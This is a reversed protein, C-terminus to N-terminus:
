VNLYFGVCINSNCERSYDTNHLRSINFEVGLFMFMSIHLSIAKNFRQWWKTICIFWASSRLWNHHFFHNFMPKKEWRFQLATWNLKLLIRYITVESSTLCSCYCHSLLLSGWNLMRMACMLGTKNSVIFLCKKSVIIVHLTENKMRQKSRIKKWDNIKTTQRRKQRDNPIRTANVCRLIIM